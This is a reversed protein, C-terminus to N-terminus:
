QTHMNVRKIQVKLISLIHLFLLLLFNSVGIACTSLSMNQAAKALKEKVLNNAVPRYCCYIFLAKTGYHVFDM